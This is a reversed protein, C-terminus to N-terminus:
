RHGRRKHFYALVADASILPASWVLEENRLTYSARVEIARDSAILAAVDQPMDKLGKAKIIVQEGPLLTIISEPIRRTGELIAAGITPQPGEKQKTMLVLVLSAQMFPQETVEVAERDASWPLDVSASGINTLSVTYIVEDGGLLYFLRDLGLLRLELPLRPSPIGSVAVSGGSGVDPATVVAEPSTLDLVHKARPPRQAGILEGIMLGVVVAIPVPNM